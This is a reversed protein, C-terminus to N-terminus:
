NNYCQNIFVRLFYFHKKGFFTRKKRWFTHKKSFVSLEKKSERTSGLMVVYM